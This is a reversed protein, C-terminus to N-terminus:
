VSVHKRVLTTMYCLLTVSRPLESCKVVLSPKLSIAQAFYLPYSTVICNPSKSDM